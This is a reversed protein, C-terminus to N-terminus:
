YHQLAQAGRVALDFYASHGVDCELCVSGSQWELWFRVYEHNPLTVAAFNSRGHQTLLADGAVNGGDFFEGDRDISGSLRTGRLRNYDRARRNFATRTTPSGHTTAFHLPVNGRLSFGGVFAACDSPYRVLGFPLGGFIRFCGRDNHYVCRTRM